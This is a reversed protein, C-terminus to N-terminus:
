GVKRGSSPSALLVETQDGVKVTSGTLTVTETSRGLNILVIFTKDAGSRVLRLVNEAIAEIEFDSEAFTENKRLRLLAKYFKYHSKDAEEQAKLNNTTYNPHVAILPKAGNNFGANVSGDWQMPSRNPDRSLDKFVVPDANCAWPDSTEEWSIERYDEMAMEDGNYTFAVGPLTLLLAALAAVRETGM